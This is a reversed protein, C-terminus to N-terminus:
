VAVIDCHSEVNIAAIIAQNAEPFQYQNLQARPVWSISQGERSCAVGSFDKVMYVRLLVEYDIYDHWVDILPLCDQVDIALEEQLERSLAQEPTEGIELKGGPFEWLGAQVQHSQRQSILISEGQCIVGVAVEIYRPALLKHSNVVVSSLSKVPVM